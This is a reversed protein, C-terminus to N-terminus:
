RRRSQARAVCLMVDKCGDPWKGAVANVSPPQAAPELASEPGLLSPVSTSPATEADGLNMVGAPWATAYACALGSGSRTGGTRIQGKSKPHDDIVNM